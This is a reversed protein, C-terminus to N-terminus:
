KLELLPAVFNKALPLHKAGDNMSALDFVGCGDVVVADCGDDAVLMGNADAVVAIDAVAVATDNGAGCAVM